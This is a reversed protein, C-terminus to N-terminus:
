FTGFNNKINYQKIVGDVLTSLKSEFQYKKFLSDNVYDINSENHEGHGNYGKNYWMDEDKHDFNQTIKAKKNPLITPTIYGYNVLYEYNNKLWEKKDWSKDRIGTMLVNLDNGTEKQTERALFGYNKRVLDFIDRRDFAGDRYRTAKFKDSLSYFAQPVYRYKFHKVLERTYIKNKDMLNM